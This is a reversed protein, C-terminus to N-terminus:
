RFWSINKWEEDEQDEQMLTVIWRIYMVEDIALLLAVISVILALIKFIM